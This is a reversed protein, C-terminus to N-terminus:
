NALTKVWATRNAIYESPYASDPVFNTINVDPVIQGHEEGCPFQEEAMTANDMLFTFNGPTGWYYAADPRSLTIPPGEPLQQAIPIHPYAGIQRQVYMTTAFWAMNDANRQVYYGTPHDQQHPLFRALIKSHLAGYAQTLWLIPRGPHRPDEEQVSIKLDTVREEPTAEM